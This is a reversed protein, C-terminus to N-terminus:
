NGRHRSQRPPMKPSSANPGAEFEQRLPIPKKGMRAYDTVFTQTVAESSYGIEDMLFSALLRALRNMAFKHTEGTSAFLWDSLALFREFASARNFLLQMSERFRGSNFYLDFYRAFRRLRQMTQFDIESTQLVEYPPSPNFVCTQRNYRAVPTGRLRKLM